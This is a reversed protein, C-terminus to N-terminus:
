AARRLAPKVARRENRMQIRLRRAGEAQRQLRARCWPMLAHIDPLNRDDDGNKFTNERYATVYVHEFPDIFDQETRNM